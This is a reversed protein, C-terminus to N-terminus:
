ISKKGHNLNGLLYQVISMACFAATEARLIRKGLSVPQFNQKLASEVESDSFGGEPGILMFISQVPAHLLHDLPAKEKEWFILKTDHSNGKQLIQSFDCIPHCTLPIPRGCQKCAELSIKEWRKTKDSSPQAACHLSTFPHIAHIGLETAKQVLFDMKKGKLLAQAFHVSPGGENTMQKSITQLFVEKKGVDRIIAQYIAGTGDFLEIKEGTGLRLVVRLHHAESGTLITRNEDINKPDIYFRRM